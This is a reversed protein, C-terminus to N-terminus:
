VRIVVKKRETKKKTTPTGDAADKRDISALASEIKPNRDIKKPLLPNSTKL